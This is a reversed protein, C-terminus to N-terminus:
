NLQSQGIHLLFHQATSSMVMNCPERLQQGQVEAVNKSLFNEKTAINGPKVLVLLFALLATCPKGDKMVQVRDM